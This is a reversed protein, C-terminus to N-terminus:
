TNSVRGGSLNFVQTRSADKITVGFSKLVKFAVGSGEGLLGLLIQETGVFNHGLRRSEEQALMIVQLAKDTFREFM